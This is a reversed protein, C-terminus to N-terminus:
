CAFGCDMQRAGNAYGGVSCRGDTTSWHDAAYAFELQGGGVLHVVITYRLQSFVDVYGNNFNTRGVGGIQNQQNNKVIVAVGPASQYQTVHIGCRSRKALLHPSTPILAATAITVFTILHLILRPLSNNFPSLQM